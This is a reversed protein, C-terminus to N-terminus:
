PAKPLLLLAPAKRWYKTTSVVTQKKFPQKNPLKKSTLADELGESIKDYDLDDPALEKILQNSLLVGLSYSAEEIGVSDTSSVPSDQANLSFGLLM